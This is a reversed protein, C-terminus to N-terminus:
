NTVMNFQGFGDQGIYSNWTNLDDDVSSTYADTELDHTGNNDHGYRYQNFKSYGLTAQVGNTTLFDARKDGTMYTHANDGNLEGSTRSQIEIIGKSFTLTGDTVSGGTTSMAQGTDYM